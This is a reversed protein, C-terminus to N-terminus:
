APRLNSITSKNEDGIYLQSSCTQNTSSKHLNHVARPKMQQTCLTSYVNTHQETMVFSGVNITNLYFGMM